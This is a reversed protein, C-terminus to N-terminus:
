KWTIDITKKKLIKGLRTGGFIEGAIKKLIKKFTKKLFEASNKKLIRKFTWRINTWSNKQSNEWPNGSYNFFFFMRLIWWFLGQGGSIKPSEELLKEKLLENCRFDRSSYREFNIGLLSWPQEWFNNLLNKDFDSVVDGRSNNWIKKRILGGCASQPCLNLIKKWNVNKFEKVFFYKYNGEFVGWFTSELFFFDKLNASFEGLFADM